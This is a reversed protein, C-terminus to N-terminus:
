EEVVMHGDMEEHGSGCFNDCLFEFRGAKRPTLRVTNVRDPVFDARFDLDPISFGHGFDLTTLEIVVSQGRKLVIESPSFVFRKAVLKIVRESKDAAPGSEDALVAGGLAGAAAAIGLLAAALSKRM